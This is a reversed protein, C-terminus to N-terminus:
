ARIWYSTYDFPTSRNFYRAQERALARRQLNPALAEELEAYFEAVLRADSGTPNFGDYDHREEMGSGGVRPATQATYCIRGSFALVADSQPLFVVINRLFLLLTTKEGCMKDFESKRRSITWIEM